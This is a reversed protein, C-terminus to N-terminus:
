LPRAYRWKGCLYLIQHVIQHCHTCLTVINEDTAGGNPIIHHLHSVGVSAYEKGYLYPNHSGYYNIQNCIYCVGKDRKEFHLRDRDDLNGKKISTDIKDPVRDVLSQLQSWNFCRSKNIKIKADNDARLKPYNLTKVGIRKRESIYPMIKSMEEKHYWRYESDNLLKLDTMREDGFSFLSLNEGGWIKQM